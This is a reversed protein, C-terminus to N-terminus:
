VVFVFDRDELVVDVVLADRGLRHGDGKVVLDADLYGHRCGRHVDGDRSRHLHRRERTMDTACHCWTEVPTGRSAPIHQPSRHRYGSPGGVEQSLAEPPIPSGTTRTRLGPSESTPLNLKWHRRDELRTRWVLM